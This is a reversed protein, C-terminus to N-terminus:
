FDRNRRQDRNNGEKQQTQTKNRRRKRTQKPPLKPQESSIKRTKKKKLFAQIVRFKGGLVAKAADRLNQITASEIDNTELCKRIKVKIEDNVQPSKHIKKTASQKTEM